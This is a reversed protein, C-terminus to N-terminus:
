KPKREATAGKLEMVASGYWCHYGSHGGALEYIRWPRKSCIENNAKRLELDCVTYFPCSYAEGDKEIDDTSQILHSDYYHYFSQLTAIKQALDIDKEASLLFDKKYNIEDERINEESKFIVKHDCINVTDFLEQINGSIINDIEFIPNDIRKKYIKLYEDTLHKMAVSLVARNNYTSVISGMQAEVGPLMQKLISRCKDIIKELGKEISFGNELYFKLDELFKIYCYGSNRQSLSVVAIAIYTYTDITPIIAKAVDRIVTYETQVFEDNIDKLRMVNKDYIQDLEYAIGEYMYFKGLVIKDEYEQGDIDFQYILEPFDMVESMIDEGYLTFINM